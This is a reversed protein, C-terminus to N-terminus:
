RGSGRKAQRHAVGQGVMAGGLVLVAPLYRRAALLLLGEAVLVAVLPWVPGEGRGSRAAQAFGGAILLTIGVLFLALIGLIVAIAGGDLSVSEALVTV